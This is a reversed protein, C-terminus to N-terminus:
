SLLGTHTKGPQFGWLCTKDHCSEFIFFYVIYSDKITTLHLNFIQDRRYSNPMMLSASHHRVPIGLSPIKLRRRVVMKFFDKEQM